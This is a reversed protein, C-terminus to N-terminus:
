SQGTLRAHSFTGTLHEFLVLLLWLSVIAAVAVVAQVLDLAIPQGLAALALASLAINRGVLAWSLAHGAGGCGCDIRDRGRILNAGMAGAYALLLVVGGGLAVARAGTLLLGALVAAEAAILLLAAPRTLAAPLLRYEAMTAAFGAFDGLKHVLARAFVLVLVGTAIAALIADLGDM